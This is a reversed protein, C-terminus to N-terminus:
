IGLLYGSIHTTSISARALYEANVHGSL